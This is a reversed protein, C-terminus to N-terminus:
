AAERGLARLVAPRDSVRAMHAATMPFGVLSGLGRSDMWRSFVLLYADAVSYADGLVYPGGDGLIKEILGFADALAWPAKARMAQAPAEGDAYREPRFAHAFAVHVTSCLFVNFAQMKAFLYPDDLPALRAAPFSQALFALIAPNETLAGRDTMLVPVRGKPNIALYALSRQAGERLNVREFAHGGGIEELVIHPALSCAGPAYFLKLM